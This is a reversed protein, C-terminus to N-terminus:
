LLLKVVFLILSPRLTEKMRSFFEDRAEKLDNLSMFIGNSMPLAHQDFQGSPSMLVVDEPSMIAGPQQRENIFAERRLQHYEVWMASMFHTAACLLGSSWIVSEWALAGWFVLKRVRSLM